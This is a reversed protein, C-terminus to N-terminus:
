KSLFSVKGSVVPTVGGSCTHGVTVLDGAAVAVTNSTDSCTNAGASISCTVATNVGDKRVTFVATQGTPINASTRVRFNSITQAVPWPVQAEAETTTAGSFAKPVHVTSTNNFCIFSNDYEWVTISGSDASESAWSPNAAAGSTRLFQGNTGPALRVWSTGNFYLVDGQVQSAVSMKCTVTDPTGEAGTCTNNEAGLVDLRSSGSPTATGTNGRVDTYGDGLTTIARPNGGAGDSCFYPLENTTDLVWEVGVCSGAAPAGASTKHDHDSSTHTRVHKTNSDLGAYGNAANKRSVVEYLQSTEAWATGDFVLTLIQNDKLTYSAQLVLGTGNDLKLTNTDSTGELLCMKGAPVGATLVQPNSTLDVAGGSGAVPVIRLRGGETGCDVQGAATLTQTAVRDVLDLAKVKGPISSDFVLIQGNVPAGAQGEWPWLLLCLVLLMLFAFTRLM